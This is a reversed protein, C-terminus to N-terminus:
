WLPTMQIRSYKTPISFNLGTARCGNHHPASAGLRKVRLQIPVDVTFNSAELEGPMVAQTNARLTSEYDGDTLGSRVPHALGKPRSLSSATVAEGTSPLFFGQGTMFALPKPSM